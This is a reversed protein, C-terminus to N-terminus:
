SRQMTHFYKQDKIKTSNKILNIGWMISWVWGIVFISTLAQVFAAFISIFFARKWQDKGHETQSGFLITLTALFTGLGPIFCNMLFFLVSVALPLTPVSKRFCDHGKSGDSYHAYISSSLLLSASASSKSPVTHDNFINSNFNDFNRDDSDDQGGLLLGSLNNTPSPSQFDRIVYDNSSGNMMLPIGKLNENTSADLISRDITPLNPDNFTHPMTSTATTTTTISIPPNVTTTSVNSSTSSSKPQNSQSILSGTLQNMCAICNHYVCCPPLSLSYQDNRSLVKKAGHFSYGHNNGVILNSNYNNNNNNNNKLCEKMSCCRVPYRHDTSKVRISHAIFKQMPFSGQHILESKNMSSMLSVNGNVNTPLPSSSSSSSSITAPDPLTPSTAADAQIMSKPTGISQQSPPLQHSISMLPPPPFYSVM